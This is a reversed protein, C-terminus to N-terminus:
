DNNIFVLFLNAYASKNRTSQITIRRCQKVLFYMQYGSPILKIQM